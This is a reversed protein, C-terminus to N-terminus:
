AAQAADKNQQRMVDIDRGHFASLTGRHVVSVLTPSWPAARLLRYLRKETEEDLASNAEDLFALTPRNVLVRSLGIRQQEGGSLVHSWEDAEDLRPALHGISVADLICKLEHDDDHPAAPYCMAERLTAYPLYPKQPVFLTGEAPIAIQGAGHAWLGAAARM